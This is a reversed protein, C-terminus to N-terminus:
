QLLVKFLIWHIRELLVAFYTQILTSFGLGFGIMMFLRGIRASAALPGTHERTFIFFTITTVFILFVILGMLTDFATSGLINSSAIIQPIIQGQMTSGITVGCGGAIVWLFGWRAVWRYRPVFRLYILLGFIVPFIILYQGGMLPRLASRYIARWNNAIGVGAGSGVIFHELWRWGPWDVFVFTLAILILVMPVYLEILGVMTM